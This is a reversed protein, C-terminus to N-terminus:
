ISAREDPLEYSGEIEKGLLREVDARTSKLPTIGRWDKAELDICFLCLFAAAVALKLMKEVFSSVCTRSLGTSTLAIAM